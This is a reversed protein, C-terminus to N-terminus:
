SKKTRFKTKPTRCTGATAGGDFDNTKLSGNVKKGHARVTGSITLKSGDANKLVEKLNGKKTVKTPDLSQFRFLFDGADCKTPVGKAKFASVKSPRGNNKSIRLTVKSDPVGVITGSHRIKKTAALAPVSIVAILLILLIPTILKKM